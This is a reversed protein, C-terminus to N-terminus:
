LAPWPLAAAEGPLSPAVAQAHMTHWAYADALGLHTALRQLDLRKLLEITIPRKENWFIQAQFFAQAPASNLLSALFRAEAETACGIFYVTDDFVVPKSNCPGFVHFSLQKYFGSIAVKWPMFTYPGIGFVAFAPKSKYISSARAQLALSHSQLYAWTLPARLRLVDTPEGMHRQPVVMHKARPVRHGAIDASKRLPFVYDPEIAVVHHLGNRLIGATEDLEMVRACDHKIGSRWTYHADGGAFCATAGYAAADSVFVGEHLGISAHPTTANLDAFVACTRAAAGAQVQVVFLCAEVAAHFHVQADIAYIRAEALPYNQKWAQALVKRAVATKCLMAIAGGRARLWELNRMLMWESIDFNSKGTQAAYGPLGKANIKAPLNGSGLAGLAANTVWPYNGLVLLPGPLAQLTTHWPHSFFDAHHISVNPLHATAHALAQVYSENIDAGYLLADPFAAAAAQVFAGVGCTPELISAPRIDLGALLTIVQQALAKPTQFDGFAETAKSKKPSKM